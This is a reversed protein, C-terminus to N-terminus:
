SVDIDMPESSAMKRAIESLMKEKWVKYEARRADSLYDYKDQFMTDARRVQTTERSVDPDDEDALHLDVDQFGEKLVDEIANFWDGTLWDRDNIKAVASDFDRPRVVSWNAWAQEVQLSGTLPVEEQARGLLALVEKRKAVYRDRDDVVEGSTIALARMTTFFFIAAYLATKNKSIWEEDTARGEALVSEMGAVLISALNEHETEACM